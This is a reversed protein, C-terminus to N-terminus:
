RSPHRMDRGVEIAMLTSRASKVALLAAELATARNPSIGERRLVELRGELAELQGLADARARGGEPGRLQEMLDSQAGPGDSGPSTRDRAFTM